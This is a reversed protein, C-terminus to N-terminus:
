GAGRPAVHSRGEEVGMNVLMAVDVEQSEHKTPRMTKAM